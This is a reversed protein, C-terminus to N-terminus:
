NLSINGQRSSPAPTTTTVAAAASAGTAAAATAGTAAATAGTPTATIAGTAAATTAGTAASATPASASTVTRAAVASLLPGAFPGFTGLHPEDHVATGATGGIVALEIDLFLFGLVQGDVARVATFLAFVRNAPQQAFLFRLGRRSQVDFAALPEFLGARVHSAHVVQEGAAVQAAAFPEVDGGLLSYNEELCPFKKRGAAIVLTCDWVSVSFQVM